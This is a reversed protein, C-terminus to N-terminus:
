SSGSHTNSNGDLRNELLWTAWAAVVVGLPASGLNTMYGQVDDAAGVQAALAAGTEPDLRAQALLAATLLYYTGAGDRLLIANDDNGGSPRRSCITPAQGMASCSPTTTMEERHPM